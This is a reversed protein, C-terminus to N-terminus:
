DRVADSAVESADADSAAGGASGGDVVVAGFPPVMVTQEPPEVVADDLGLIQTCSVCSLAFSIALRRM